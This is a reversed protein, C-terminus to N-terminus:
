NTHNSKVTARVPNMVQWRESWNIMSMGDSLCHIGNLQLYMLAKMYPRVWTGNPDQCHNRAEYCHHYNTQFQRM